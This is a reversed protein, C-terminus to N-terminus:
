DCGDEVEISGDPLSERTRVFMMSDIREFQTDLARDVVRDDLGDYITVRGNSEARLVAESPNLLVSEYFDIPIAGAALTHGAHTTLSIALVVALRAQKRIDRIGEQTSRTQAHM